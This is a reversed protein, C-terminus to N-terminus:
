AKFKIEKKIIVVMYKLNIGQYSSFPKIVSGQGDSAFVNPSILLHTCQETRQLSYDPVHVPFQFEALTEDWTRDIVAVLHVRVPDKDEVDGLHCVV